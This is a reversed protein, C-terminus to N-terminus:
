GPPPLSARVWSTTFTWVVSWLRMPSLRATAGGRCPKRACSSWTPTEPSTSSSVWRQGSSWPRCTTPSAVFRCTAGDPMRPRGPRMACAGSGPWTGTRSARPPCLRACSTSATSRTTVPGRFPVSTPSCPSTTSRCSTSSRASLVSPTGSRGCHRAQDTSSRPDPSRRRRMWAHAGKQGPESSSGASGRSPAPDDAPVCRGDVTPFRGDAASRCARSTGHRLQRCDPSGSRDTPPASSRARTGVRARVRPSTRGPADGGPLCPM